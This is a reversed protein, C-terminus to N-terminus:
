QLGKLPFVQGIRSIQGAACDAPWLEVRDGEKLDLGAPLEAVDYYMVRVHFYRVQVFRRTSYEDAPLNALCPPRMSAVLAPSYSNVVWGRRAGHQWDIDAHGIGIACGSLLVLGMSPSIFRRIWKM